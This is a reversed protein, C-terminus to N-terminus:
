LEVPTIIPVPVTLPLPVNLIVGLGIGVSHGIVNVVVSRAPFVEVPAVIPVPLISRVVGTVGVNTVGVFKLGSVPLPSIPEMTVIVSPLPDTTPVPITSPLPDNLIIDFGIGVIEGIVTVTVSGAPFVEVPAFIGVPLISTTSGTAGVTFVGVFKKGSVPVPSTPVVIFINLVDFITIPLQITPLLPSNEIVGLGIGFEPGIFTVDVSSAPFSLETVVIEVLLISRVSGTTGTIVRGVFKEGTVPVPSGPLSTVIYLALPAIIPVPVTLPLPVNLIVGLGIGLSPGILIVVVSGAPFVEVPDLIGVPLISKITGLTM